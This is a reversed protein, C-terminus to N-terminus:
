SESRLSGRTLIAWTSNTEYLLARADNEKREREKKLLAAPIVFIRVKLIEVYSWPGM